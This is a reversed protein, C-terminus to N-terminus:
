ASKEMAVVAAHVGSGEGDDPPAADVGAVLRAGISDDCCGGNLALWACQKVSDAIFPFHARFDLESDRLMQELALLKQTSQLGALSHHGEAHLLVLVSELAEFLHTCALLARARADDLVLRCGAALDCALAEVIAAAADACADLVFLAAQAHRSCAEIIAQCAMRTAHGHPSTFGTRGDCHLAGSGGDALTHIAALAISSLELSHEVRKQALERVACEIHKAILVPWEPESRLCKVCRALASEEVHAGLAPLRRRSFDATTVAGEAAPQEGPKAEAMAVDDRALEPPAAGEGRAREAARARITAIALGVLLFKLAEEDM